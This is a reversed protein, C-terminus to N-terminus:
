RPCIRPSGSRPEHSDQALVRIPEYGEPPIITYHSSTAQVRGVNSLKRFEKANATTHNTDTIQYVWEPPTTRDAEKKSVWDGVLPKSNSTAPNWPISAVILDM